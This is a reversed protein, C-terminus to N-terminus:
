ILHVDFNIAVLMLHRLATVPLEGEAGILFILNHEHWSQRLLGRQTVRRDEAVRRYHTGYSTYVASGCLIASIRLPFNSM